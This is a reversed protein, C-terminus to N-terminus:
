KTKTYKDRKIILVDGSIYYTRKNELAEEESKVQEFSANAHGGSSSFVLTGDSKLVYQNASELWDANYTFPASCSGDKEFTIMGENNESIWVGTISNSKSCATIGILTFIMMNFIVVTKILKKNKLVKM